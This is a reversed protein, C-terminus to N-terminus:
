QDEVPRPVGDPPTRPAPLPREARLATVEARLARIGETLEGVATATRVAHGHEREFRAIFWAAINATVVGLLAIGSLMLCVALVKGPGTVPATDGYGVTTMTVVAWWVADGLGVISSGEAGREVELVALSGFMVLGACSGVVYTTLRVQAALRARQGVLLVAALLRLLRLPQLLPLVVAALALPQGRVFAWRDRSLRLRIAYDVAFAGWVLWETVQCTWRLTGPVGPSVVPVAYAVGFLLALVLLPTGTRAEWRERRAEGAGPDGGSGGAPATAAPATAAPPASESPAPLPAESPPAM